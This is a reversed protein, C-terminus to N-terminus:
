KLIAKAVKPDIIITDHEFDLKIRWKQLTNAGLIADESINDIVMFEDSLRIDNHYFDLRVAYEIRLYTDKAATAIELPTRMKELTALRAAHEANICSFTAGSDFLTYIVEEGKSGEYRLPIKIISM